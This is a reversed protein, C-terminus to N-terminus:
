ICFKRNIDRVARIVSSKDEGEQELAEVMKERNSARLDRTM